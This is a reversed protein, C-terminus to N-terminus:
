WSDPLAPGFLGRFFEFNSDDQANGAKRSGM